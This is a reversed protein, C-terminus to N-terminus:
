RACARPVPGWPRLLRVFTTVSARGPDLLVAGIEIPEAAADELLGTTEFDVVAVPGIEALWPALADADLGLEAADHERAGLV